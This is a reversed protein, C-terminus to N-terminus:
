GTDMMCDGSLDDGSLTMRRKKLHRTIDQEALKEAKADPFAWM